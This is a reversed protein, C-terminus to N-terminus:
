KKKGGTAVIKPKKVPVAEVDIKEAEPTAMIVMADEVAPSPEVKPAPKNGLNGIHEKQRPDSYIEAM